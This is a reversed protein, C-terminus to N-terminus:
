TRRSTRRLRRSRGFRQLDDHLRLRLREGSTGGNLALNLSLGLPEAATHRLSVKLIPDGVYEASVLDNNPLRAGGLVSCAVVCVSIQPHVEERPTNAVEWWETIVKDQKYYRRM